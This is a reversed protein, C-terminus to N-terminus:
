NAQVGELKKLYETCDSETFGECVLATVLEKESFSYRAQLREVAKKAEAHNENLRAKHFEDLNTKVM